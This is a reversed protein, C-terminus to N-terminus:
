MTITSYAIRVAGQRGASGSYNLYTWYHISSGAYSYLGSKGGAGGGGGGGYATAQSASDSGVGGNTAGTYNYTLPNYSTIFPPADTGYSGSPGSGYLDIGGGYGGGAGKHRSTYAQAWGSGGRGGGGYGGGIGSGGSAAGGGGGPRVASQGSEGIEGTGGSNGIHNSGYSTNITYTGGTGGQIIDSTGGGGNGGNASVLDIDNLSVRSFGGNEAPDIDNWPPYLSDNVGSSSSGSRVFRSSYANTGGGGGSGVVVTVNDGPTVSVNHSVAVAGGGGGAGCGRSSAGPAGGGGGGVAYVTIYNVNDPVTWYQLGTTTFFQEGSTIEISSDLVVVSASVSPFDNLSLTMTEPGEGSSADETLTFALSNSSGSVVFNGNLSGSSLDASSIGTITYPVSTGSEVNDTQLTFAVTNGELTNLVNASVSYSPLSPHNILTFTNSSGSFTVLSSNSGTSSGSLYLSDTNMNGIHLITNSNVTSGVKLEAM